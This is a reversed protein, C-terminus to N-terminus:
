VFKVSKLAQMTVWWITCGGFAHPSKEMEDLISYIVEGADLGHVFVCRLVPLMQEGDVYECYDFKGGDWLEEGPSHNGEQKTLTKYVNLQHEPTLIPEWAKLFTEVFLEEGERELTEIYERVGNRFKEPHWKGEYRCWRAEYLINTWNQQLIEMAEERTTTSLMPAGDAELDPEICILQKTEWVADGSTSSWQGETSMKVSKVLQVPTMSPPAYAVNDNM